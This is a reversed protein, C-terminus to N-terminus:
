PPAPLRAEVVQQIGEAVRSMFNYGSEREVQDVSVLYQQWATGSVSAANPMIVAYITTAASVDAAGQGRELVVLVKFTARPVAIGPGIWSQTGTADFLGGAVIFVQKGQQGALEREYSELREWPGANLARVQPLMNTMVFTTANASPSSTRDGSPCLHGRDYGSGRYDLPGVHYWDAPLLADVHFTNTRHAKGFDDAVLRWAVWNPVERRVNYSVVFVEHDLILDDSPDSDTPLGLALNISGISSSPSDTTAVPALGQTGACGALWM